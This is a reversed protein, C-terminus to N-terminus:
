EFRLKFKLSDNNKDVSTDKIYKAYFFYTGAELVGYDVTQISSSQSGSFNIKVKTSGTAGDATNTNDLTQGINSLLGYDWTTEAYNICDVYVNYGGPTTIAVACVAASSAVGANTSTYYGDATLTFGYSAGSVPLVSYTPEPQEFGVVFKFSDDYNDTNVDKRYKAYVTYAGAALTGYEIRQATASGEGKFNHMVTTTGTAGDDTYTTGLTQGVNSLLGYDFNSEGYSICDFYVNYGGPTTITVIAVAASNAVGANQSTWYGGTYSFGYSAGSATAVTYSPSTITGGGEDGGGTDGGTCGQFGTTGTVYPFLDSLYHDWAVSYLFPSAKTWEGEYFIYSAPRVIFIATAVVGSGDNATATISVRGKHRGMIYGASTVTAINTDNSAWTVSTDAADSPEVTATMALYGNASLEYNSCSITISSVKKNGATASVTITCRAYVSDDLDSYAYLYATGAALATITCGNDSTSSKSIYTGAQSISFTVSRDSLSSPYAYATVSVSNGVTLSYSTGINMSVSTVEEAPASINLTITTYVSTDLDSYIRLYATGAANASVVCSNDSYSSISAYATGSYISFTVTRDSLTSPYAYATVSVTDGVTMAYPSSINASVSDVTEVAQVPEFRVVFKLSDNNSDVSGDKRYKAFLNYTGAALVGYDVTQVSASQSGKFNMKVTSSGTAGDDTNSVSLSYNPNSLIGYDFNSEGYNICDVYMNYGGPTDVVILAVAASNAVGANQSTWYGDSAKAFGYSAGSATAVAYTPEDSSGGSASVNITILQDVSTDLNSQIYLYGTGEASASLVCSNSISSVVSVIGGGYTYFSVTRDSLSSPNAYAYVTVRDGVTMAYPSSISASVSTVTESSSAESVTVICYASISDDPAWAYVNTTGAGRATVLGSQTVNAISTSSVGWASTETTTSGDSYTTIATLQYTDGVTLNLTSPTVVFSTITPAASSAVGELVFRVYVSNTTASRVYVSQTGAATITIQAYSTTKTGWSFFSGDSMPYWNVGASDTGTDTLVAAYVTITQGITATITDGTAINQGNYTVQVSTVAM